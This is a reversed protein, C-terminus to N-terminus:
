FTSKRLLHIPGMEGIPKNLISSKNVNQVEYDLDSEESVVASEVPLGRLKSQKSQKFQKLVKNTKLEAKM